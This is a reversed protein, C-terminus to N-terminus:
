KNDPNWKGEFTWQATVKGASPSGPATDLNDKLWDFKKGEPKCNYYYAHSDWFMEKATAAKYIPLDALNKDFSCNILYFNAEHHYRGLNYSTTGKFNCNLLVSKMSRDKSGDHWIIAAAGPCTNIFTCNEAYAWGRPCYFDTGGQMICDKVYYMGTEGNWPSVTDNGWNRLICNIVKLRTSKITLLAFQHATKIVKRSETKGSERNVCDIFVSDPANLGYTNEITLNTLTIDNGDLNIIGSYRDGTNECSYILSAIAGTIITKERSEGQLVIHHKSIYIREKYEGNKIFIIRDQASSDPLSNVAEQITKFNGTGNADVIIKVPQAILFLPTLLAILPYFLKTNSKMGMAKYIVLGKKM